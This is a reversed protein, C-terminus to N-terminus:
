MESLRQVTKEDIYSGIVRDDEGRIRLWQAQRLMLTKLGGKEFTSHVFIFQLGVVTEKM